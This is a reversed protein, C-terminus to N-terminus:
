TGAPVSMAKLYVRSQEKALVAQQQLLLDWNPVAYYLCDRGLARKSYTFILQDASVSLQKPDFYPKSYACIIMQM